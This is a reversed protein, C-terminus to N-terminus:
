ALTAELDVKTWGNRLLPIADEEKLSVIGDAGLNIQEGSLTYLTSCQSHAPRQVRIYKGASKNLLAKAERSYFEFVGWGPFRTKIWGFFQSTSDVQDDYKGNPFNSLEHLYADLWHAVSPVFVLGSEIDISQISMRQKKDEKPIFGAVPVGAERLEQILATGSSKDEVVIASPKHREAQ